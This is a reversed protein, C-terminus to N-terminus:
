ENLLAQFEEESLVTVGLQQAKALKSGADSGAVVYDTNKSVSSAVRGGAKEIMEKAADRTMTALTGTLVFSKGALPQAGAASQPNVIQIGAAAFKKLLMDTEPKQFFQAVSKAVETGIEYVTTLEAETAQRLKDLSGFHKALVKATHEGVHRIGLAFIFRWLEPQKSKEIAQIVNEASKDAMRELPLLQAKTISYLDAADKILGNDIFLELLKSSVGDINMARKSVFHELHGIQKAPCDHNTCRHVAEGAPRVVAGKCVPCQTPMVFKQENGTRKTDIIKVVEPIVDGARQIVATDGIRIDKREIEDQNHLTARSVLVGRLNVPELVAVPTLAGTRGVQVIIDNITTTEQTAPFKFAIAWRPSRSIMGLEQQLQFSNVKVVSGDIEYPLSDRREHLEHYRQLVEEISQCRYHFATPLGMKRFMALMEFQSAFSIGEVQGLAYFFAKLPRKATITPDLQRLSGAASNRPNAFLPEGTQEREKNLKAFDAKDMYVEGRVELRSPLPFTPKGDADLEQSLRLPIAKVTKLNQTVDEGTVGDGRTSGSVFVGHEYIAEFALGDIKPEFVYEIDATTSLARKVRQDFEKLEEEDMANALSLMPVNHTVTGFEKLPAAGVRQTPSDPTILEPRAAEIEQLRRMLRDYEADSVEPNDDVYYLKNHRRIDSRLTELEQLLQTDSM